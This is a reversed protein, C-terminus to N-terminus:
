FSYNCGRTKCVNTTPPMQQHQKLITLRTCIQTRVIRQACVHTRGQDLNLVTATYSRQIVHLLLGVIIAGNEPTDCPKWLNASSTRQATKLPVSPPCCVLPEAQHREKLVVCFCCLATFFLANKPAKEFSRSSPLLKRMDTRGEANLM